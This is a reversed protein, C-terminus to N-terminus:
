TTDEAGYRLKGGACRTRRKRAGEESSVGRGVGWQPPPGARAERVRKRKDREGKGGREPEKNGKEIEGARIGRGEGRGKAGRRGHQTITVAILRPFRLTQDRASGDLFCHQNPSSAIEGRQRAYWIKCVIM